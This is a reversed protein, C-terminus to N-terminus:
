ACISTMAHQECTSPFGAQCHCQCTGQPKLDIDDSEAPLCSFGICHRSRWLTLLHTHVYTGSSLCVHVRICQQALRLIRCRLSDERM